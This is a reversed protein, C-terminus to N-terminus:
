NDKEIKNVIDHHRRGIVHRWSDLAVTGMAMGGTGELKLNRMTKKRPVLSIDVGVFSRMRM